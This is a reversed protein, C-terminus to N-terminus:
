CFGGGEIAGVGLEIGFFADPGKASATHGIRSFASGPYQLQVLAYKSDVGLPRQIAPVRHSRERYRPISNREKVIWVTNVVHADVRPLDLLLLEDQFNDFVLARIAPSRDRQGVIGPFAALRGIGFGGDGLM